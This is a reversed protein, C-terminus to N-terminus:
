CGFRSITSFQLSDTLLPKASLQDLVDDLRTLNLSDYGNILSHKTIVLDLCGCCRRRGTTTGYERGIEQFRVGVDQFIVRKFSWCSPSISVNLQEILFLKM